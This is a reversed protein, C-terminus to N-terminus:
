VRVCLKSIFRTAIHNCHFNSCLCLKLNSDDHCYLLTRARCDNQRKKEIECNVTAVTEIAGEIANIFDNENCSFQIMIELQEISSISDVKHYAACASVGM